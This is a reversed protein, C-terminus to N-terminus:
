QLIGTDRIICLIDLYLLPCFVWKKQLGLGELVLKKEKNKMEPLVSVPALALSTYERMKDKIKIRTFLIQGVLKGKAVAVLSLQPLFAVPLRFM